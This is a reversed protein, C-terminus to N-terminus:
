ASEHKSLCHLAGGEQIVVRCDIAIIKRDPFVSKFYAKAKKDTKPEYSPFLLGGNVFIFNMYSAPLIEKGMKKQPPLQLTDVKAKNGYHKKLWAEILKKAEMLREYNPSTSDEESAMVVRNTEVFRALNDIHGDTHDGDLGEPLVLIDRLGLKKCLASLIKKLDKPDNRNKGILCDLTTMALGDDNVELAGGEFIFPIDSIPLNEAKAIASP